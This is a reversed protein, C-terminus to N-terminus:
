YLFCFEMPLLVKLKYKTSIFSFISADPNVFYFDFPLLISNNRYNGKYEAFLLAFFRAGYNYNNRSFFDIVSFDSNLEM